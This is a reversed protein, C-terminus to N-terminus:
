GTGPAPPSTVATPNASAMRQRAHAAGADAPVLVPRTRPLTSTAAVPAGTAPAATERGSSPARVVDPGPPANVKSSGRAVRMGYRRMRTTTTAGPHPLHVM